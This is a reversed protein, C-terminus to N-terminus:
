NGEGSKKANAGSINGIILLIIFVSEFYTYNELNLVVSHICVSNVSKTKISYLSYFSLM